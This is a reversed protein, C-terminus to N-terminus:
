LDEPTKLPSTNTKPFVCIQSPDNEQFIGQRSFSKDLIVIGCGVPHPGEQIDPVGKQLAGIRGPGIKFSTQFADIGPFRLDLGPHPFTVTLAMGKRHDISHRCSNLQHTLMMGVPIQGTIGGPHHLGQFRDGGSCGRKLIKRSNGEKGHGEPNGDRNGRRKELIQPRSQLFVELPLQTINTCGGGSKKICPRKRNKVQDSDKFIGFSGQRSQVCLEPDKKDKSRQGM